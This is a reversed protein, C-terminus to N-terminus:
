SKGESFLIAIGVLLRIVGILLTLLQLGYAIGVDKRNLVNQTTGKVGVTWLTYLGFVLSLTFWADGFFVQSLPGSGPHGVQAAGLTLPILIGVAAIGATVASTIAAASAAASAVPANARNCIWTVIHFGGLVVFIICDIYIRDDTFAYPWSIM